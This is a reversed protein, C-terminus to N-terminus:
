KEENLFNKLQKLTKISQYYEIGIDNTKIVCPLNYCGNRRIDIVASYNNNISEVIFKVNPFDKSFKMFEKTMKSCIPSYDRVILRIKTLM